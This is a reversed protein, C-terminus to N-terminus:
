ADPTLFKSQFNAWKAQLNFRVIITQLSTPDVAGRQVFELLRLHDKARGTELAIAALYEPAMVWGVVGDFDQALSNAIADQYLPADFCLLQVPWDGIILYPGDQRAGHSKLDTWVPTLANLAASHPGAFVVFVDVDETLGLEIYRLAAVAGGIAYASIIGESKIRNLESIVAKIAM